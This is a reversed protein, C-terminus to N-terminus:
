NLEQIENLYIDELNDLDNIVESVIDIQLTITWDQNNFDIYNRADDTIELNISSLEHNKFISNFRTYNNYFIIGGQSALVPISAITRSTGKNKTDLNKLNFTSSKINIKTLGSFNVCYASNLSNSLSSYSQGVLFGIIPFISCTTDSFTFSQTNSFIFQNTISNFTITWSNGITTIWQTMFTNVNYNGNPFIYSNTIGGLKITIQNNTNNILYWSCPFQANVVSLRMEIANRNITLADQFFFVVNSKMTSNCVDCNASNIYIQKSNITQYSILNNSKSM